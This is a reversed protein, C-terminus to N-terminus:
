KERGFCEVCIFRQPKDRLGPYKDDWTKLTRFGKDCRECKVIVTQGLSNLCVLCLEEGSRVKAGCWKCFDKSRRLAQYCNVCHLYDIGRGGRHKPAGCLPCPVLKHTKRWFPSEKKKAEFKRRCALCMKSEKHKLNSCYPCSVLRHKGPL